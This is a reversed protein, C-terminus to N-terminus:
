SSPGRTIHPLRGDGYTSTVESVVIQYGDYWRENEKKAVRHPEFRALQTVADMSEFYYCANKVTGDKSFWAENGIFGKLSKAYEAIEDDLRNFEDDYTGPKFIFQCLIM